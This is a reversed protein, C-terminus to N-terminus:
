DLKDETAKFSSWEVKSVGQMDKSSLARHRNRFYIRLEALHDASTVRSIIQPTERSNDPQEAQTKPKLRTTSRVVDRRIGTKDKARVDDM